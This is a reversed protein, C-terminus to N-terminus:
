RYWKDSDTAEYGCKLCVATYIGMKANDLATKGPYPLNLKAWRSCGCKGGCFVKVLYKNPTSEAYQPLRSIKEEVPTNPLHAKVRMHYAPDEGEADYVVRVPNFQDVWSIDKRDTWTVLIVKEPSRRIIDQVCDDGKEYGLSDIPYVIAVDIERPSSHWTGRNISDVFIRNGARISKLIPLLFYNAMQMSNARFLITAPKPCKSLVVSLALNYKQNQNTGTVLLFKENSDIFSKIEEITKEETNM